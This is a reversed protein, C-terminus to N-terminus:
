MGSVSRHHCIVRICGRYSAVRGPERSVSLPLSFARNTSKALVAVPISCRPKFSRLGSEVMVEIDLHLVVLIDRGAEDVGELM